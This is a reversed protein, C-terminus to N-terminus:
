ALVSVDTIPKMDTLRILDAIVMYTHLAASEALGRDAKEHANNDVTNVRGILEGLFEAETRSLRTEDTSRTKYFLYANLRTIYREKDVPVDIMRGDRGAPLQVTKSEDQWLYDAVDRLMNRCSYLAARWEQDNSSGLQRDLASLHNTLLLEALKEDIESRYREWLGTIRNEYKLRILTPLAWNFADERIAYVVARCAVPAYYEWADVEGHRYLQRGGGGRGAPISVSVQDLGPARRLLGSQELQLVTDITGRLHLPRAAPTGFSREHHRAALDTPSFDSNHLSKWRILGQVIRYPPLEMDQPFGNIEILFHEYAEHDGILLAAHSCRRLVSKVAPDGLNCERVVESLIQIAEVIPDETHPEV